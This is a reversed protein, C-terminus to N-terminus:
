YRNLTGPAPPHSRHDAHRPLGRASPNAGRLTFVAAELGRRRVLDVRRDFGDRSPAGRDTLRLQSSPGVRSEAGSTRVISAGDENPIGSGGGTTVRPTCPPPTGTRAGRRVAVGGRASWPRGRAPQVPGGPVMRASRALRHSSNRLHLRAPELIDQERVAPAKSSRMPWGHSRAPGRRLRTCNLRVATADSRPTGCLRGTAM